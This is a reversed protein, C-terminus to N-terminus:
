YVGDMEYHVLTEQNKRSMQRRGTKKEVVREQNFQFLKELIESREVMVAQLTNILQEQSPPNDPERNRYRDFGYKGDFRKLTTLYSKAELVSLRLICSRLAALRTWVNLQINQVKKSHYIFTM